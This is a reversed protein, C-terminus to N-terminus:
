LYKTKFTKAPSDLNTAQSPISSLSLYGAKFLISATNWDAGKFHNKRGCYLSYNNIALANREMMFNRFTEVIRKSTTTNYKWFLNPIVQRKLIMMSAGLCYSVSYSQRNLLNRNKYNQLSYGGIKYRKFTSVKQLKSFSDLWRSKLIVDNEIFMLYEYRKIYGLLFGLMIAIDPGGKVNLIKAVINTSKYKNVFEVNEGDDSGDLWIMDINKALKKFVKLSKKTYEVRDKTSYIICINSRPEKHKFLFTIVDNRLLMLIVSLKQVTIVFINYLSCIIEPYLVNDTDLIEIIRKRMYRVIPNKSRYNIM